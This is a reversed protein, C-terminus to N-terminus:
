GQRRRDGRPDQVGLCGKDTCAPLRLARATACQEARRVNYTHALLVDRARDGDLTVALNSLMHRLQTGGQRLRAFREAFERIGKHGEYIGVIPSHLTADEAFCSVIAEVDGADLATAYRVFLDNIELRDQLAHLDM